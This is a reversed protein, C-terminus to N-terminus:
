RVLVCHILSSRLAGYFSSSSFINEHALFIYINRMFIKRRAGRKEPMEEILFFFM